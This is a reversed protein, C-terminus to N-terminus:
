KFYKKIYSEPLFELLAKIVCESRSERKKYTYERLADDLNTPINFSVVTKDENKTKKFLNDKSSEKKDKNENRVKNVKKSKKNREM